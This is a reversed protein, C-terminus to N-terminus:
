RLVIVDATLPLDFTLTSKDSVSLNRGSALTASKFAALEAHNLTVTFGPLAKGAWNVCPLVAGVGKAQVWGVEVLPNSGLVPRVTTENM